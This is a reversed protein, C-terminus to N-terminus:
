LCQRRCSSARRRGRGAPGTKGAPPFPLESLTPCDMRSFWARTDVKVQESGEVWPWGVKGSTLFSLEGLTPRPTSVESRVDTGLYWGWGIGRSAISGVTFGLIVPGTMIWQSWVVALGGVEVTFINSLRNFYGYQYHISSRSVVINPYFINRRLM